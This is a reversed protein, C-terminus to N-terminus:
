RYFIQTYYYRGSADKVAAIGIHTFDGEINKRHGDSGIWAEVVSKADPYFSAVNEAISTASEKEKLIEFKEDFNDHNIQGISIMYKSHDVALQNATESMELPSLGKTARYENVLKLIENEISQESPTEEDTPDVPPQESSTEEDTVPSEDESCSYLLSLVVFLACCYRLLNSKM